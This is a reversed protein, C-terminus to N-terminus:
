INYKDTDKKIQMIEWEGETVFSDKYKFRIPENNVIDKVSILKGSHIKDIIYKHGIILPYDKEIAVLIDGEEYFPFIQHEEFIRFQTIM